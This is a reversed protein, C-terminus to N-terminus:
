FWRSLESHAKEWVSVIKALINVKSAIWVEVLKMGRFRPLTKHILVVRKAIDKLEYLYRFDWEEWPPDIIASEFSHRKFPLHFMDAVVDPRLLADADVRVDGIQSKGCCVHLTFGRLLKYYLKEESAWWVWNPELRRLKMKQHLGILRRRPPTRDQVKLSSQVVSSM